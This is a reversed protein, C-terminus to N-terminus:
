RSLSSTITKNVNLKLVNARFWTNVENFIKNLTLKHGNYDPNTVIVSTDDAYLSIKAGKLSVKTVANIYLLFFISRSNIGTTSWIENREM